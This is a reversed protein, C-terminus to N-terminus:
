LVHRSLKAVVDVATPAMPTLLVSVVPFLTVIEGPFIAVPELVVPVGAVLSPLIIDRFLDESPMDSLGMPVSSVIMFVQPVQCLRLVVEGALPTVATFIFILIANDGTLIVMKDGPMTVMAVSPFIIPLFHLVRITLVLGMTVLAVLAM